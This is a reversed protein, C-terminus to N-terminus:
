RAWSRTEPEVFVYDRNMPHNWFAFVLGRALWWVIWTGIAPLWLGVAVLGANLLASTTTVFLYRAAQTTAKGAVDFAWFRNISFNAVAGVACGVLTALPPYASLSQVLFWVVSFDSM